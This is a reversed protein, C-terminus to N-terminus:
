VKYPIDNNRYWPETQFGDGDTLIEEYGMIGIRISEQRIRWIM